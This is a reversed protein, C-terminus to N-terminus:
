VLWHSCAGNSLKSCTDTVQICTHIFTIWALRKRPVALCHIIFNSSKSRQNTKHSIRAVFKLTKAILYQGVIVAKRRPIVIFFVRFVLYILKKQLSMQLLSTNDIKHCFTIIYVEEPLKITSMLISRCFLILRSPSDFRHAQYWSSIQERRGTYQNQDLDPIIISFMNFKKEFVYSLSFM